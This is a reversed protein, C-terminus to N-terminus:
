WAGVTVVYRGYVCVVSVYREVYVDCPVCRGVPIVQWISVGLLSGSVFVCEVIICVLAFCWFGEEYDDVVQFFM